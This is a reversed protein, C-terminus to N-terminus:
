STDNFLSKKLKESILPGYQEFVAHVRPYQKSCPLSAQPVRRYFYDKDYCIKTKIDNETLGEKKILKEKV